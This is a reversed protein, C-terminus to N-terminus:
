AKKSFRFPQTRNCKNPIVPKTGRDELRQRLEASDYSKDGLRQRAARTRRILREAV